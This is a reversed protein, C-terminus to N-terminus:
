RQRFIRSADGQQVLIVFERYDFCAEAKKVKECSLKNNIVHFQLQVRCAVGSIIEAKEELDCNSKSV